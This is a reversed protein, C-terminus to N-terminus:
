SGKHQLIEPHEAKHGPAPHSTLWGKVDAAWEKVEATAKDLMSPDEKKLEESLQAIKDEMVKVHAKQSDEHILWKYDGLGKKANTLARRADAYQKEALFNGAQVLNDHVTQLPNDPRASTEAKAPAEEKQDAALAPQFVFLSSLVTTTILAYFPKM